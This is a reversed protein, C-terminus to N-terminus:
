MRCILLITEVTVVMTMTYGRAAATSYYDGADAALM